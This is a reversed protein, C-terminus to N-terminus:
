AGGFVEVEGFVSTPAAHGVRIMQNPEGKGCNPTGLVEFTEPGGVMKLNRWFEPTVGRYNPNKVVNTLRGDKVLCAWECGFQFKLRSDDISWSCNTKMYIGHEVSAIMEELSTHDSELNINGMRDIPPRNWGVARSSSVGPIGSRMQSLKGGIGRVLIGGQILYEREAPTGEDDFAYSALQCSVDPDFVVNLLDSGYRYHGFMDLTVFSTGAYNREDGLIRDLELPHGISEHIQLIMQDPDLIVDMRGSPCEPAALLEQAEELIKFASERMSSDDVAEWGGQRAKGRGGYTRRQAEAGEGAIVGMNPSVYRNLQRVNGGTSTVFLTEEEAYSISAFWEVIQKGNRLSVNLDNLFEIKESLPVSLWTTQNPSEYEGRVLSLPVSSLDYISNDKSFEAWDVAKEIARKLGVESLDSTAAYGMGRQDYVTIMAGLDETNVVPQCVDHRVSLTESTERVIRFSWQKKQPAFSKFREAITELM